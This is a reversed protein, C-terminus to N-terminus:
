QTKWGKAVGKNSLQAITEMTGFLTNINNSDAFGDIAKDCIELMENVNIQAKDKRWLCEIINEYTKAVAWYDEM